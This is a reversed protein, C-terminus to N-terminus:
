RSLRPAAGAREVGAPGAQELQEYARLRLREPPSFRDRTLEEVLHQKQEDDLSPDGLIADRERQYEAVRERWLARRRELKELRDAAEEGVMQVRLARIEDETGGAERLAREAEALRLPLMAERRAERVNPPLQQEIEEIRALKEEMTLEPDQLVKRRELDALQMREEEGFLAEADQEGFVERRLARLAELREELSGSVGGQEAIERTRRRYELYRDLFAVADEAAQGSLRAHIERIIRARIDPMPVEGVATLFYDIFRRVDPTVIFRGQEDTTLAGDVETGRLSRALREFAEPQAPRRQNLEPLSDTRPASSRGERVERVTRGVAGDAPTGREGPGSAFWWLLVVLVLVLAAVARPVNRRM